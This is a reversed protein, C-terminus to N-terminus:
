LTRYPKSVNLASALFSRGSTPSPLILGGIFLFVAAIMAWTLANSIKHDSVGSEERAQFRQHM